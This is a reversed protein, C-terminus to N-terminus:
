TYRIGRHEPRFFQPLLADVRLLGERTLAVLDSTATQLYGREDLWALPERFRSVVDVGYKDLFYSPRISGFKLQLVLERILREEDTPRYARGLAPEGARIAASYSEWRDLNQM